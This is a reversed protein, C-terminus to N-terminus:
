LGNCEISIEGYNLSHQHSHYFILETKGADDSVVIDKGLDVYGEYHGTHKNYFVNFKITM